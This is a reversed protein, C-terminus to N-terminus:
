GVSRRYNNRLFSNVFPKYSCSFFTQVESSVIIHLDTVLINWLVGNLIATMLFSLSLLHPSFFEWVNNIFIFIIVDMSSFRTPTGLVITLVSIGYSGDFHSSCICGFLISESYWLYMQMKIYYSLHPPLRPTYQDFPYLLWWVIVYTYYQVYLEFIIWGM